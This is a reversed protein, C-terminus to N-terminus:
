RRTQVYLENVQNLLEMTWEKESLFDRGDTEIIQVANNKGM